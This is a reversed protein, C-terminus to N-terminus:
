LEIVTPKFRLADNSISMFNLLNVSKPPKVFGKSLSELSLHMTYEKFLYFNTNKKVLPVCM